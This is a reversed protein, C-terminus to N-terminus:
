LSWLLTKSNPFFVMRGMAQCKVRRRLADQLLHPREVWLPLRVAELPVAKFLAEAGPFGHAKGVPSVPFFQPFVHPNKM